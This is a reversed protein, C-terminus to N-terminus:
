RRRISRCDLGSGLHASQPRRASVHERRRRGRLPHTSGRRKRVIVGASLVKLLCSLPLCVYAALNILLRPEFTVHAIRSLELKKVLSSGLTRALRVVTELPIPAYHSIVLTHLATRYAPEDTHATCSELLDMLGESTGYGLRLSQLRAWQQRSFWTLGEPPVLAELMRLKLAHRLLPRWTALKCDNLKMSTCSVGVDQAFIHADEISSIRSLALSSLTAQSSSLATAISSPLVIRADRPGVIRLHLLLPLQALIKGSLEMYAYPTSREDTNTMDLTFSTLVYFLSEEGSEQLSRFVTNLKVM